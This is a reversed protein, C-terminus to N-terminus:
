FSVEVVERRGRGKKDGVCFKGWEIYLRQIELVGFFM